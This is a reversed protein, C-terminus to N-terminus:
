PSPPLLSPRSLLLSSGPAVVLLPLPLSLYSAPPQLSSAAALPPRRNHTSRVSGRLPSRRYGLTVSFLGPSLVVLVWLGPLPSPSVHTCPPMARCPCRCGLATGQAPQWHGTRVRRRSLFRAQEAGSRLGRCGRASPPMSRSASAHTQMLWQPMTQTGGGLAAQPHSGRWLRDHGEVGAPSAHGSNGSGRNVYRAVTQLCGRRSPLTGMRNSRCLGAPAITLLGPHSRASPSASGQSSARGIVLAGYPRRSNGSLFTTRNLGTATCSTKQLYRADRDGNGPRARLCARLASRLPM